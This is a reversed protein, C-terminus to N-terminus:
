SFREKRLIVLWDLYSSPHDQTRKESVSPGRNPPVPRCCNSYACLHPGFTPTPHAEDIQWLLCCTFFSSGRIERQGWQGEGTRAVALERRVM